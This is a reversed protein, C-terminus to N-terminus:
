SRRFVTFANRARLPLTLSSSEKGRKFPRLIDPINNQSVSRLDVLRQYSDMSNKGKILKVLRSLVWIRVLLIIAQLNINTVHLRNDEFAPQIICCLVM